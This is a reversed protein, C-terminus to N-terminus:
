EPVEQWPDLTASSGRNRNLFCEHASKEFARLQELVAPDQEGEPLTQYAIRVDRADNWQQQFEVDHSM